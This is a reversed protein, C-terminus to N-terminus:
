RVGGERLRQIEIERLMLRAAEAAAVRTRDREAVYAAYPSQTADVSTIAQSEGSMIPIEEGDRGLRYSAVLLVEYRLIEDLPGLVIDRKSVEVDVELWHDANPGPEGLYSRLAQEIYYGTRGSIPSVRVRRALAIGSEDRMPRFGCGALSGMAAILFLRLAERRDLSWM